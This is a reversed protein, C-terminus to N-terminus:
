AEIFCWFIKVPKDSTNKSFHIEGASILVMQGADATITKQGPSDITLTGEIVYFMEDNEHQDKVLAHAPALSFIGSNLQSGIAKSAIIKVIGGYETTGEVNEPIFKQM